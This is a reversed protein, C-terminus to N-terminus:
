VCFHPRNHIWYFHSLGYLSSLGNKTNLKAWCSDLCHQCILLISWDCLSCMVPFITQLVSDPRISKLIDPTSQLICICLQCCVDLWLATGAQFFNTCYSKWCHHVAVHYKILFSCQHNREAGPSICNSLLCCFLQCSCKWKINRLTPANSM